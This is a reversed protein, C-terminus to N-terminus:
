ILTVYASALAASCAGKIVKRTGAGNDSEGVSLQDMLELFKSEASANEEMTLVGGWFSNIMKSAIELKQTQNFLTLRRNFDFNGWIASRNTAVNNIAANDVLLSCFEAALRLVAVQNAALFVKVDNDTPLSDKLDSYAKVINAHGTDVGTLVSYTQLLQEHNRIGVAVQTQNLTEEVTKPPKAIEGTDPDFEPVEIDIDGGPQRGPTAESSTGVQGQIPANSICQTFTILLIALLFFTM